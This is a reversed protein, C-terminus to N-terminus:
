KAIPNMLMYSINGFVDTESIRNIAMSFQNQGVDFGITDVLKM